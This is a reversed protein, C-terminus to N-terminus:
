HYTPRGESEVPPEAVSRSPRVDVFALVLFLGAVLGFVLGTAMRTGPTNSFVGLVDGGWDILMPILAFGLIWPGRKGFRVQRKVALYAVAAIPLGWYIGFCRHCVALQVGDVHPSRGPLQHCVAAFGQM